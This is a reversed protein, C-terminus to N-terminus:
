SLSLKRMASGLAVVQHSTLIVIGGQALHAEALGRVLEVGDTDLATFPEDLIWLVAGQLLLRALAVRQRQGASLSRVALDARHGLGVRALATELDREAQHIGHVGLGLTLNETATLESKLGLHHGLYGLEAQYPQRHGTIDRGRWHVEGEDPPTLGALIRLLSTKGSGNAGEIQLAEGAMLEFRLGSFLAADGRSCGLDRAQLLPLSHSM